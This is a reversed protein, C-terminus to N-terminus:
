LVEKVRVEKLFISSELKEIQQPTFQTLKCNSDRLIETLKM